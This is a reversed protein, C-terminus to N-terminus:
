AQAFPVVEDAAIEQRDALVVWESDLAPLGTKERPGVDPFRVFDRGWGWALGATRRGSASCSYVVTGSSATLEAVATHAVVVFVSAVEAVAGVLEATEM